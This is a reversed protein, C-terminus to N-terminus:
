YQPKMPNSLRLLLQRTNTTVSFTDTDSRELQPPEHHIPWQICRSQRWASETCSEGVCYTCFYLVAFLFFLFCLCFLKPVPKNAGECKKAEAFSTQLNKWQKRSFTEDEGDTQLGRGPAMQSDGHVKMLSLSSPAYLHRYLCVQECSEPRLSLEHQVLRALLTLTLM